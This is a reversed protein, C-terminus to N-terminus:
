VLTANTGKNKSRNGEKMEENKKEKKGYNHELRGNNKTKNKSLAGSREM